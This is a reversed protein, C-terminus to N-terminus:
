TIDEEFAEFADHQDVDALVPDVPAFQGPPPVNVAKLVWHRFRHKELPSVIPDVGFSETYIERLLARLTNRAAITGIQKARRIAVRIFFKHAEPYAIMLDRVLRGAITNVQERTSM